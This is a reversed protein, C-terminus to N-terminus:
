LSQVPAPGVPKGEADLPVNKEVTGEGTIEAREVVFPKGKGTPNAVFVDYAGKDLAFRHEPGPESRAVEKQTGAQYIIVQTADSVDRGSLLPQVRLEGRVREKLDFRAQTGNRLEVGRWWQGQPPTAVKVDVLGPYALILEGSLFDGMKEGSVGDYVEVGLGLERGTKDLVNIQLGAVENIMVTSTRNAKVLVTDRTIKGGLVDLEVHYTGPPLSVPADIKSTALPVQKGQPYIQVRTDSRAGEEGFARVVLSGHGKEQANASWACLLVLCLFVLFSRHRSM